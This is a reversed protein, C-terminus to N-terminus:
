GIRPGADKVHDPVNEKFQQFNEEFLRALRRAQADYAKKDKWTNRPNLVETPVGSVSAPVQFGFIPDVKMEVADLSGDLVANLLARTYRIEMRRGQGYPGGTWGTNVLWCASKHELIKKELLRAYVSPHRM